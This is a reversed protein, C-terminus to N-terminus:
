AVRTQRGQVQGQAPSRIGGEDEVRRVGGKQGEQPQPSYRGRQVHVPQFPTTRFPSSAALGVVPPRLLEPHAIRISQDCVGRSDGVVVVVLETNRGFEDAVASGDEVCRGS